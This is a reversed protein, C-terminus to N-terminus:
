KPEHGSEKISNKIGGLCTLFVLGAAFFRACFSCTICFAADVAVLFCVVKSLSLGGMVAGKTNVDAGVKTLHMCGYAWGITGAGSLPIGM